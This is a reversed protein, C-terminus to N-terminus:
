AVSAPQYMGCSCVMPLMQTCVDCRPDFKERHCAPHYFGPHKDDDKYSKDIPKSCGTCRFCDYHFAKGSVTTYTGDFTKKCVTCREGFADKYCEPHYFGPHKDDDKYSKDIPKSCATCRFCDYHFPKGKVTTYKGDFTQKCLTCREGFVEKYCQPHFFGAQGDRTNYKDSIAKHCAACQFCSNHMAKGEVQTFSGELLKKCVTCREGFAEKYCHPHYPRNQAKDTNYSGEIPQQCGACRWCSGHWKGGLATLGAGAPVSKGCGQCPPGNSVAPKAAAATTAASMSPKALNVERNPVAPANSGKAPPTQEAPPPNPAEQTPRGPQQLQAPGAPHQIQSQAKQAVAPAAVLSPGPKVAAAVIANTAPLVSAPLNLPGASSSTTPEEDTLSQLMRTINSYSASIASELRAAGHHGNVYVPGAKHLASAPRGSPSPGKQQGQQKHQDQQM